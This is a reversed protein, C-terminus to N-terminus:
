KSSAGGETTAGWAGAYERLAPEARCSARPCWAFCAGGGAGRSSWAASPAVSWGRTDGRREGVGAAAVCFAM